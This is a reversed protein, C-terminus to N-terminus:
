TTPVAHIDSSIKKELAVFEGNNVTLDMPKVAFVEGFKKEVQHLEITAM